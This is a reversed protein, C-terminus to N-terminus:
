FAPTAKKALSEAAEGEKLVATAVHVNTGAHNRLLDGGM